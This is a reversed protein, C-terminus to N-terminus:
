CPRIRRRPSLRTRCGSASDDTISMATLGVFVLAYQRKYDRLRDTKEPSSLFGDLSSYVTEPLPLIHRWCFESWLLQCLYFSTLRPTALKPLDESPLSKVYLKHNHLAGLMIGSGALALITGLLAPAWHPSAAPIRSSAELLNLFLGFRAVVFGLAMLTLATRVWALLTREAAFFVRPDSM